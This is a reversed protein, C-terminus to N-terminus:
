CLISPYSQRFLFTKLGCKHRHWTASQEMTSCWGCCFSPRWCNFVAVPPCRAPWHTVIESTTQVAYWVFPTSRCRPLSSGYRETITALKLQIREPVKLWHFSTFTDTIHDSHRLGAISRAAANLVSQMMIAQDYSEVMYADVLNCYDLLHLALHNSHCTAKGGLYNSLYWLFSVRGRM